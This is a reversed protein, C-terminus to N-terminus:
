KRSRRKRRGEEDYSWGAFTGIFFADKATFADDESETQVLENDFESDDDDFPEDMELNEDFEDEFNDNDMLDEFFDCM